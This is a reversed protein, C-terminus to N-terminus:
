PRARRFTAPPSEWSAPPLIHAAASRVDDDIWGADPEEDPGSATADRVLWATARDPGVAFGICVALMSLPVLAGVGNGSPVLLLWVAAASWAAMSRRRALLAVMLIATPAIIIPFGAALGIAVSEAGVAATLVLVTRVAVREDEDLPSDTSDVGGRATM